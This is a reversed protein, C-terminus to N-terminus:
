IEVKVRSDKEFVARVWNRVRVVFRFDYKVSDVIMVKEETFTNTKWTAKRTMANLIGCFRVLYSFATYFPLLFICFIHRAYYRRLKPYNHLFQLINLSYCYSGIFDLLYLILLTAFVIKYNRNVFCLLIMVFFWIFKPFSMTHDKIILRTTYDFLIKYPKRMKKLFFMNAVELEGLQWRQRQTYYKDLNEIPDVMFIADECFSVKQHLNEKVQFTLHTDEGVTETNYMRTKLLTSKRFASFAGSLTFITNTEAQFNRGALFAQCYEMFEVRRFLKLFRQNKPTQEILSPEILIAGTMCDIDKYTEFKRILNYLASEELQGDSDINIIYKGTSNFIAMNLANSKGNASRLWNMPLDVFDLQAKQFIDFSNDKSGNDICLVDIYENPYTSDNISRLCNYLTAASNYIPVLISVQPFYKLEKDERNLRAKKKLLLIFNGIAPIFELLIPLIVWGAWFIISSHIFTGNFFKTLM